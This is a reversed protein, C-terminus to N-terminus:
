GADSDVSVFGHVAGADAIHIERVHGEVMGGWRLSRVGVSFFGLGTRNTWGGKGGNAGREAPTLPPWQWTAVPARSYVKKM